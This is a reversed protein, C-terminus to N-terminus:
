GKGSSIEEIPGYYYVPNTGDLYEEKCDPRHVDIYSNVLALIDGKQFGSDALTEVMEEIQFLAEEVRNM